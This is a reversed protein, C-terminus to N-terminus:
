FGFRARHHALSASSIAHAPHTRLAAVHAGTATCVQGSDTVFIGGTDLLVHHNPCLCLINSAVDPGDHPRGIPVIHAGEAYSGERTELRTGCVQCCYDHLKKVQLSLATDRVLRETVTVVRRKPKKIPPPLTLPAHASLGTVRSLEFRCIQFGSRGRLDYAKDVSYLGDYRFGGPVKRIVRVPQGSTINEALSKNLHTFAQDAIQKKTKPDRGGHGTYLIFDGNDVDDEYEASLVISEVGQGQIGSGAIGGERQRHVGEKWLEIRNVYLPRPSAIDGFSM